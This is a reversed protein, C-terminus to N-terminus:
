TSVRSLRMEVMKIKGKKRYDRLEMGWFMNAEVEADERILVGRERRGGGAAWGCGAWCVAVAEGRQCGAGRRLERKATSGVKAGVVM